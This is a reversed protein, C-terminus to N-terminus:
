NTNSALKRQASLIERSDDHMYNTELQQHLYRLRADGNNPIHRFKDFNKAIDLTEVDFSPFNENLINYNKLCYYTHADQENNTTNAKLTRFKKVLGKDILGSDLTEIEKRIKPVSLAKNNTYGKAGSKSMIEETLHAINTATQPLKRAFLIAIIAEPESTM